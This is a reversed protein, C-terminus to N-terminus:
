IYTLKAPQFKTKEAADKNPRHLHILMVVLCGLIVDVVYIVIRCKCKMQVNTQM